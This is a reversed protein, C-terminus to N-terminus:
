SRCIQLPSHGFADIGSLTDGGSRPNQKADRPVPFLAWGWGELTSWLFLVGLGTYPPPSALMSQLVRFGRANRLTYSVGRLGLPTFISFYPFYLTEYGGKSGFFPIKNM